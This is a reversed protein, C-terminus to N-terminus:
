VRHLKRHIKCLGSLSAQDGEIQDSEVGFQMLAAAYLNTLASAGILQVRQSHFKDRGYLARASDIESAIVLGALYSDAEEASLAESIQQSRVTFLLSELGAQGRAATVAADFMQGPAAKVPRKPNLLISNQGLIDLLEGTLATHFGTVKQNECVVWKSHTGPLCILTERRDAAGFIQIEEGRMVDPLGDMRDGSLGPVISFRTGRAEFHHVANLVDDISAPVAAYGAMQWGINSGVMGAMLVPLDRDRGIWDAITEFGIEEVAEVGKIQGIGPTKRQEIVADQDDILMFRGNSTGWDVGIFAATQSTM